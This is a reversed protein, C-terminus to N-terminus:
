FFSNTDSRQSSDIIRIDRQTYTHGQLLDAQLASYSNGPVIFVWYGDSSVYNGSIGNLSGHHRLEENYFAGNWNHFYFFSDAIANSSRYQYGHVRLGGMIYMTNGSPSGGMWLNTKYHFYNSATFGLNTAWNIIWRDNGFGGSYKHRVHGKETIRMQESMTIATSSSSDHGTYFSIISGENLTGDINSTPEEHFNAASNPRRWQAMIQAIVGNRINSGSADYSRFRLVGLPDTGGASTKSNALDLQAGNSGNIQMNGNPSTVGVGVAGGSTIRMRESNTNSTATAFTLDGNCANSAATTILGISGAIRINDSTDHGGFYMNLDTDSNAYFNWRASSNTFTVMGNPDISMKEGSGGVDGVGTSIKFRESDSNDVGMVFGYPSDPTQFALSSDGTGLQRIVLRPTDTVTDNVRLETLYGPADTGIGVKQSSDITMALTSSAGDVAGTYFEMKGSSGRVELDNGALSINAKYDNGNSHDYFWELKPTSNQGGVQLTTLTGVSTINAQAATTLTGGITGTGTINNSGMALTGTMTGGALPLYPETDTAWSFTGDGDSVLVQGSSGDGSVKLEDAGITGQGISASQGMLVVYSDAGSAPAETYTLTSGSVSYATGPMQMVGDIMVLLNQANPTVDVGGVQLTFATTSGNFSSGYDDIEIFSGANTPSHGLYPM